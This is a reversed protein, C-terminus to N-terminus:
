SSVGSKLHVALFHAVHREALQHARQLKDPTADSGMLTLRITALPAVAEWALWAADFQPPFHDADQWATFLPTLRKVVDEIADGAGEAGDRLLMSTFKRVQPDAWHAVIRGFLAPMARSPPMQAMTAADFGALGLVGPGARMMLLDLMAQKGEFHAYIASDRIGVAEAIQRVSTAAFGQRAFLDLAAALLRDRTEPGETKPPRGRRNPRTEMDLLKILM